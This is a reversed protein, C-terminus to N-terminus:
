LERHNMQTTVHIEGPFLLCKDAPKINMDQRQALNINRVNLRLNSIGEVCDLERIATYVTEYQLLEGFGQNSHIYDVCNSVTNQIMEECDVYHPKVYIDATVDVAAYEADVIEVKTSLLRYHNVYQLITQKYISSLRTFPQESQPVVVIEVTDTDEHSIAKVKNIALGPTQKVINEYDEQLVATESSMVKDIFMKKLQEITDKRKGGVGPSVNILRLTDDGVPTFEKGADINGREGETVAISCMYLHANIYEGTNSIHLVGENEDIDYILSDEGSKNPKIFSYLQEEQSDVRSAIISFSDKVIHNVPLQITQNDYGHVVGLDYQRMIDEDYIVIKIANVDNCPEYGFSTKSFSYNCKNKGVNNKRYFRGRNSGESYETYQYYEGDKQEKCYISIYGNELLDCYVEVSESGQYTLCVAKSEKQWAEFIFGDFHNARPALDYSNEM